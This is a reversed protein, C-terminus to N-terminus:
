RACCRAPLEASAVWLQANAECYCVTTEIDPSARLTIRPEEMIAKARNGTRQM